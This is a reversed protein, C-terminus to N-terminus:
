DLVVLLAYESYIKQGSAEIAVHLYSLSEQSLSLSGSFVKCSPSRKLFVKESNQLSRMQPFYMYPREPVQYWGEVWQLSGFNCWNTAWGLESGRAIINKIMKIVENEV